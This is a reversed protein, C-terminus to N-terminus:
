KTLPPYAFNSEKACAPVPKAVASKHMEALTVLNSTSPVPVSIVIGM